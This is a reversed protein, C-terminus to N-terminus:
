HRGSAELMMTLPLAASLELNGMTVQGSHFSTHIDVPLQIRFVTLEVQATLPFFVSGLGTACAYGYGSYNTSTSCLERVHTSHHAVQKILIVIDVFAARAASHMSIGVFPLNVKTVMDIPTFLGTVGSIVYMARRLRGMSKWYKNLPAVYKSIM